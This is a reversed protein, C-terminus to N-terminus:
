NSQLGSIDCRFRYRANWEGLASLIMDYGYRGIFIVFSEGVEILFQKDTLKLVQLLL